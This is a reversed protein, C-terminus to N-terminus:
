KTVTRHFEASVEAEGTGSRTADLKKAQEIGRRVSDVFQKAAEPHIDRIWVIAPKEYKKLREM